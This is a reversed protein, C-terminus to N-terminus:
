EELPLLNLDSDLIRLQYETNADTSPGPKEEPMMSYIMQGAAAAIAAGAAVKWMLSGNPSKPPPPPYHNHTVNDGLQLGMDSDRQDEPIVGNHNTRMRNDQLVNAMDEILVADRLNALGAPNELYRDIRETQTERRPNETEPQTTTM